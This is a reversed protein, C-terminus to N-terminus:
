TGGVAGRKRELGEGSTRVLTTCAAVIDRAVEAAVGDDMNNDTLIVKVEGAFIDMRAKLSKGDVAAVDAENTELM